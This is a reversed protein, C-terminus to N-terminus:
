PLRPTRPAEEEDEPYVIQPLPEVRPKADSLDDKPAVGFLGPLAFAALLFASAEKWTIVKLVLLVACAVTLVAAFVLLAPERKFQLKPFM